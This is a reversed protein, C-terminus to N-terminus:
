GVMAALSALDPLTALPKPGDVNSGEYRNIWVCAIGLENCPAIDHYLSQAVHLVQERPAHSSMLREFHAHGPKYSGVDEAAVVFDFVVDFHDATGAFLDRDINSLVGLRFRKKLVGLAANTDPFPRWTPLQEALRTREGLRLEVSFHEALRDVTAALVDCYRQFGRGEIEAEAAVYVEFFEEERGTLAGGLIERFTGLLGASWDILTGYCDFTITTIDQLEDQLM